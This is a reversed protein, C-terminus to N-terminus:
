PWPAVEGTRRLHRRKRELRQLPCLRDKCQEGAVPRAMAYHDIQDISSSAAANLGVGSNEPFSCIGLHSHNMERLLPLPRDWEHQQMAQFTGARACTLPDRHRHQVFSRKHGFLQPSQLASDQLLVQPQSNVNGELGSSLSWAPNKSCFCSRTDWLKYLHPYYGLVTLESGRCARTSQQKILGEGRGNTLAM